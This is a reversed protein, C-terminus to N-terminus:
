RGEAKAIAADALKIVRHERGEEFFEALYDAAQELAELLEPAAAILSANAQGEPSDLVGTVIQPDAKRTFVWAIAQGNADTIEDSYKGYRGAVKWPGPTHSPTTMAM